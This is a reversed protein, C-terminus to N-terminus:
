NNQRFDKDFSTQYEIFQMSTEAFYFADNAQLAVRAITDGTTNAPLLLEWATNGQNIALMQNPQTEIGDTDVFGVTASQLAHSSTLTISKKDAAIELRTRFSANELSCQGSTFRCNSKAILPYANGAVAVHPNEKVLFDVAFYTLVALIPAVIMATIVHKNKFFTM